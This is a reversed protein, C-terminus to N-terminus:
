RRRESWQGDGREEKNEKSMRQLIVPSSSEVEAAAEAARCRKKVENWEVCEGAAASSSRTAARVAAEMVPTTNAILLAAYSANMSAGVSVMVASTVCSSWESGAVVAVGGAEDAVERRVVAVAAVLGVVVLMPAVVARIMCKVSSVGRENWTNATRAMRTGDASSQGLGGGPRDVATVAPRGDM